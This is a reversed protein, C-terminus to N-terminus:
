VNLYRKCYKKTFIILLFFYGTFTLTYYFLTKKIVHKLYKQLRVWILISYLSLILDNVLMLGYVISISCYIHINNYVNSHVITHTKNFLGKSPRPAWKVQEGVQLYAYREVLMLIFSYGTKFYTYESIKM